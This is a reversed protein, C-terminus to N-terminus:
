KLLKEVAVGTDSSNTAGGKKQAVALWSQMKAIFAAQVFRRAQVRPGPTLYSPWGDRLHRM